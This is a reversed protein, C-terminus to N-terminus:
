KISDNERFKNKEVRGKAATDWLNQDTLEHTRENTVLASQDSNAWENKAAAQAIPIAKLTSSIKIFELSNNTICFLMLHDAAKM